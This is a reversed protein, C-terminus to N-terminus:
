VNIGKELGSLKYDTGKERCCDAEGRLGSVIM